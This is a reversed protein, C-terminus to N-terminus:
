HSNQKEHGRRGDSTGAAPEILTTEPPKVIENNRSRRTEGRPAQCHTDLIATATRKNAQLTKNAAAAPLAYAALRSRVYPGFMMAARCFEFLLSGGILERVAGLNVVAGGTCHGYAAIVGSILLRADMVADEDLHGLEKGYCIACALLDVQVDFDPSNPNLQALADSLNQSKRRQADLGALVNVAQSNM